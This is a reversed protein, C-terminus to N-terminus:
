APTGPAPGGVVPPRGSGSSGNGTARERLPPKGGNGKHRASMQAPLSAAAEARDTSGELVVSMTRSVGPEEMTIGYLVDAREMSGRNHTILVFQTNHSMSKLLEGFRIVNAEDLPADVEDLLCFPSPRYRFIAFVLALATLAKEGGSLLTVSQLRKGPPQAIIELGCELVDPDEDTMLRLDARGGQFLMRYIVDFEARIKEFAELFRDRSTRNIRAITEKLSAIADLLDKRQGSLFAYREELERFQDLAMMNVPGIHERRTKLEALATRLAIPDLAQEEATVAAVLAEATMGTAAAASEVLHRLDSAIRESELTIQERAARAADLSARSARVTQGRAEWALRKESLSVEGERVREAREARLASKSEIAALAGAEVQRSTEIRRALDEVTAEERAIRDRLDQDSELLRALDGDLAELRQQHAAVISRAGAISEGVRSLEARLAAISGTLREITAEQEARESELRTLDAAHREKEQALSATESRAEAMEAVITELKRRARSEEERATAAQHSLAVLDLDVAALGDVLNKLRETAAIRDTELGRLLTELSTVHSKGAEISLMLDSKARRRTLIGATDPKHSGGEMLGSTHLVDGDVTLFDFYPALRRLRMAAPLDRVVLARGLAPALAAARRTDLDILDALRGMFGADSRVEDPLSIQPLAQAGSTLFGARGKGTARLSLIGAAATDSDGVLAADLYSALYLEVASELDAAVKMGDALIGEHPTVGALLERTGVRTAEIEALAALREEHGHLTRRSEDRRADERAMAAELRELTARLTEAEAKRSGAEAQASQLGAELRERADVRGSLEPLAGQEELTLTELRRSIREIAEDAQRARNRTDSLSDIVELFRSRCAALDLEATEVKQACEQRELALRDLAAQESTLENELGGREERRRAIEEQVSGLRGELEGAHKEAAQRGRAAESAQERAVVIDREHGDLDRDIQHLADRDDRWARDEEELIRRGEEHEAELSVLTSAAQTEEARAADERSRVTRRDEELRARDHFFLVRELRAIEENLRGFRRARAAQRRLSRIQKEVEVVIDNVRLLNADAAELKMEAQRKRTKYIAIGAAEEILSRRDRPRSSLAADVKGQEIISYIGSGVNVSSLLEQIDRLRSREGNILYESEGSRFLRRTISVQEHTGDGNGNKFFLSVEAMGLPRRAESGNFIVDEMRDGRLSKVSQEGIVWNLADGINSKGCGNPGVIATIDRDLHFETRSFFSKFGLLELKELRLM